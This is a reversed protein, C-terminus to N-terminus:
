ASGALCVFPRPMLRAGEDIPPSCKYAPGSKFKYPTGEPRGPLITVKRGVKEGAIASLGAWCEGGGM